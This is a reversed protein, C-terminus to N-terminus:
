LSMYYTMDGSVKEESPGDPMGLLELLYTAFEDKPNSRDGKTNLVRSISSTLLDALQILVLAESDVAEFHDVKLEDNFRSKGAQTIRDRVNELLLKDFGPEEADKWLQLMRPLPARGTKHEHEVGNVLLLYYLHILADSVRAIGKREVSIAKISVTSSKAALIDAIDKYVLLNSKSIKKFHLEGDFARRKKCEEIEQSITATEPGHLFWINGVVLYDQTKGSEDAYVAFVDYSPQQEVAKEKESEELMGRRRRVEPSAQFLRYTNQIKARARQLSTLRTLRYLDEPDIPGGSYIDSDFRKWYIQQLTIDSDRAEPYHNLIWAVREQLTDLKAAAVSRLIKIQEDKLKLEEDPGDLTNLDFHLQTDSDQANMRENKKQWVNIQRSTM